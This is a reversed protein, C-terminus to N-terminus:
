SAIQLTQRNQLACITVFQDASLSAGGVLAGDIDAQQFLSTANQQNVSGGYLIRIKEAVWHDRQALLQRLQAHVDQAYEPTAVKGSGIAWVPEYAIVVKDFNRIGIISVVDMVQKAVVKHTQGLEFEQATEGVCLVPTLGARMAAAVKRAAIVNDENFLMRRESHGILVYDCGVDSLMDASLEGTYAGGQYDSVNQAGLKLTAKGAILRKQVSQLYLAPPCIVVEVNDSGSLYTKTIRTALQDCQQVDGNMKWNGIILKQRM